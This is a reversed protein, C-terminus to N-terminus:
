TNERISLSSQKELPTIKGILNSLVKYIRAIIEVICSGINFQASSCYSLNGIELLTSGM